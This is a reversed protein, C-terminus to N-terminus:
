KGIVALLLRIDIYRLLMILGGFMVTGLVLGPLLPLQVVVLVLATIVISLFLRDGRTFLVRLPTYDRALVITIATYLAIFLTTSLYAGMFGFIGIFLHTFLPFLLMCAVTLFTINHLGGKKALTLYAVYQQIYLILYGAALIFLYDAAPAYNRTFILVVIQRGYFLLLIVSLFCCAFLLRGVDGLGGNRHLLEAHDNNATSEPASILYVVASFFTIVAALSLSVDFYGQWTIGLDHSIVVSNIHQSISVWANVIFFSFGFYIMERTPIKTSRLAAVITRYKLVLIPLLALLPPIAFLLLIVLFDSTAFLYVAGFIIVVRMISPSASFAAALGHYRVGRLLGTIVGGLTVSALSLVLVFYLIEWSDAPINLFTFLPDHFILIVFAIVATTLIGYVLAFGFYKKGETAHGMIDFFCFNTVGQLLGPLAIIVLTILGYEYPTIARALLIKALIGSGRMAVLSLLYFFAYFSLSRTMPVGRERYRTQGHLLLPLSQVCYRTSIITRTDHSTGM